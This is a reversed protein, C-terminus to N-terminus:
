PVQLGQGYGAVPSLYFDLGEGTASGDVYLGQATGATILSIVADQLKEALQGAPYSPYHGLRGAHIVSRRGTYRGPGVLSADPLATVFDEYDFFLDEYTKALAAQIGALDAEWEPVVSLGLGQSAVQYKVLLWRITQGHAGIRRGPQSTAQLEQQYLSLKAADEALLATALNTVLGQPPQGGASMSQLVAYAAQRRAEELEGVAPSSVGDTPIDISPLQTSAGPQSVATGRDVAGIRQASAEAKDEAGLRIYAGELLRLLEMRHAPQLYTSHVSLVYVQDFARLADATRGLGAWGNGANVLSDARLPDNLESSLVATDYVQQYCLSARSAEELEAFREALLSLRGLRQVDPLGSSFVLASYATELDGNAIAADITELESAGALPYLALDAAVAAPVVQQVPDSWGESEAQGTRLLLYIGAAGAAIILLLVVAALLIWILNSREWRM